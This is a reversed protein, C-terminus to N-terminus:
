NISSCSVKVRTGDVSEIKHIFIDCQPLSKGFNLTIKASMAMNTGLVVKTAFCFVLFLIIKIGYKQNIHSRLRTM